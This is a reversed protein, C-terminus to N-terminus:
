LEGPFRPIDTHNAIKQEKTVNPKRLKPTM